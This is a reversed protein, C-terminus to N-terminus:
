NIAPLEISKFTNLFKDAYIGNDCDSGIFVVGDKSNSLVGLTIYSENNKDDIATFTITYVKTGNVDLISHKMDKTSRMGPQKSYESSIIELYSRGQEYNM